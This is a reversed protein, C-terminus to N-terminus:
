VMWFLLLLMESIMACDLDTLFNLRKAKLIYHIIEYLWYKQCLEHCSFTLLTEKTREHDGIGNWSIQKPLCFHGLMYLGPLSDLNIVTELTQPM